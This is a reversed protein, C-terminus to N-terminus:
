KRIGYGGYISKTDMLSIVSNINSNQIIQLMHSKRKRKVHLILMKKSEKLGEGDVITVGVNEARLIEALTKGDKESVIIHLTILGLALKEELICGIYNGCAFGLAYAIIKFPEENINVLVTTILYLWIIVEFFGIIAGYLKEGRTILVMRVTSLSVEVIKALFILIFSFM